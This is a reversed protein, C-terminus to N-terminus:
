GRSAATVSCAVLGAHLDDYSYAGVAVVRRGGRLRAREGLRGRRRPLRVDHCARRTLKQPGSMFSTTERVIQTVALVFEYANPWRDVVEHVLWVVEHGGDTTTGGRRVVIVDAQYESVFIPDVGDVNRLLEAHLLDLEHGLQQVARAIAPDHAGLHPASFPYADPAAQTLQTRAIALEGIAVDWRDDDM